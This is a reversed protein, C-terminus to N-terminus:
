LAEDSAILGNDGLDSLLLDRRAEFSQWDQGTISAGAPSAIELPNVYSGHKQVRFCVHPGTSLGSNGVYGIRQKQRVRQGVELGEEFRSLHAYYSVYGAPHKIKVLNGSAGAWGRYIVTGDAVSWLPTGASAAYDIGRHPRVVNLIPHRRARSFASSIRSYELPAVLFAREISSGDPRYYGGHGDSTEFYVAAHDGVGGSYRAALIRGPRVYVEVGDDDTRYMREYLIHFEDGPRVRRSFDIDWAFLEAFDSALATQEGLAKVADYLSSEVVGAVKALQAQLSARDERVSYGNGEWSLYYSEESNISYRFDLVMGQPDQGLRYRHGPRAHRFDFVPKMETAILQITATSIGQNRLATSLTWGALIEGKTVITLDTGGWRQETEIPRYMPLAEISVPDYEAVISSGPMPSPDDFSLAATVGRGTSAEGSAGDDTAEDHEALSPLELGGIKPAGFGSLFGVTLLLTTVAFRNSVAIPRIRRRIGPQTRRSSRPLIM